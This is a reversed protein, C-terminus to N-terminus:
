GETNTHVTENHVTSGHEARKTEVSKKAGEYSVEKRGQKGDEKIGNEEQV